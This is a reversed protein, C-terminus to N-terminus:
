MNDSSRFTIVYQILIRRGDNVFCADGGGNVNHAYTLWEILWPLVIGCTEFRGQADTKFITRCSGASNLKEIQAFLDRVLSYQQDVNLKAMLRTERMLAFAQAKSLQLGNEHETAFLILGQSGARPGKGGQACIAAASILSKNEILSSLPLKPASPAFCNVHNFEKPAYSIKWQHGKV